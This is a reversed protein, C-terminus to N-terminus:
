TVRKLTLAANRAVIEVRNRIRDLNLRWDNLLPRGLVSALQAIEPDPKAIRIPVIYVRVRAGDNFALYCQPEIFYTQRGGIGQAPTPRKLEAFPVGLPIGANPHLGIFDAGTDILFDVYGDVKLRPIFLRGQVYPRGDGDFSGLIM